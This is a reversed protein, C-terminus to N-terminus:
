LHSQFLCYFISLLYETQTHTNVFIYKDKYIFANRNTSVVNVVRAYNIIVCMIIWRAGEGDGDWCVCFLVM